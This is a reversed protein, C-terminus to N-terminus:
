TGWLLLEESTYYDPLLLGPLSLTTVGNEAVCILEDTRPRWHIGIFNNGVCDYAAPISSVAPFEYVTNGDCLAAVRTRGVKISKVRAPLTCFYIGIPPVFLFVDRGRAYFVAAGAAGVIGEIHWVANQYRLTCWDRNTSLLFPPCHEAYKGVVRIITEGGVDIQEVENSTYELPEAAFCYTFDGCPLPPIGIKSGDLSLLYAGRNELVIVSGRDSISVVANSAVSGVMENGRFINTTNTADSVIAVYDGRPSFLVRPPLQRTM